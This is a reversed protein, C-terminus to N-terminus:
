QLAKQVKAQFAQLAALAKQATALDNHDATSAAKLATVHTTLTTLHNALATVDARLAAFSTADPGASLTVGVPLGGLKDAQVIDYDVAAGQFTQNWQHQIIEYGRTAVMPVKSAGEWYHDITPEAYLQKGSLPQRSGVYLGASYGADQIVRGWNSVWTFIATAGVNGCSELDLALTPRNPGAAPFGALKAAQVMQTARRMAEAPVAWAPQYYGQYLLVYLGAQLAHHIDAQAGPSECDIEVGGVGSRLLDVYWSLSNGM